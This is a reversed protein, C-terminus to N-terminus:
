RKSWGACGAALSLSDLSRKLALADFPTMRTLHRKKGSIRQKALAGGGREAEGGTYAKGTRGGQEGKAVSSIRRTLNHRRKQALSKM